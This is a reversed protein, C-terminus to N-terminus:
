RNREIFEDNYYMVRLDFPRYCFKQVYDNSYGGAQSKVSDIKWSKNEKLSYKQILESKTLKFFDEIKQTLTDKDTDIVFSDRSTVIGVNNVPFLEKISFGKLYSEELAYDREVMYYNPEKNILRTFKING